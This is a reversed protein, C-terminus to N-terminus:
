RAVPAATVALAYGRKVVTRVLDKTGCAERLRNVAAEVAHADGRGPLRMALAERTVAGGDAAALQRLLAFGMPTLPLVRGNLVATTARMVLPGARTPVPAPAADFHATLTRVLAGLRWREPYITRLGADELPAATVPGVSGLVLAGAHTSERLRDLHGRAAVTDLWSEAGPASTFLVADCAGAAARDIWQEHAEADLPPGWGYVVLSHVTAGADAFAEDLGGGGKGHHQIAIRAGRLNEALLYEQVEAATESEAVWDSELGAAQIAGRAKPGRAVLRAEGLVRLLDDAMGRADAAEVWARFGIGTTAVVIDPPSAILRATEVILQEDDLHPVTRLAPAHAVTAGRRTLAAAFERSRRDATIVMACGLLPEATVGM